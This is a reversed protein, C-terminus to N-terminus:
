EEPLVDNVRWYVFAEAVFCTMFILMGVPVGVPLEFARTLVVLGGGISLAILLINVNFLFITSKKTKKREIEKDDAHNIWILASFSTIVLCAVTFQYPLIHQYPEYIAAAVLTSLAVGYPLIKGFFYFRVYPPTSGDAPKLEALLKKRISICLYVWAGAGLILVFILFVRIDISM